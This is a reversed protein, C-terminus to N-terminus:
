LQLEAPEKINQKENIQWKTANIRLEGRVGAVALPGPNPPACGGDIRNTKREAFDSPTQYGLSIM